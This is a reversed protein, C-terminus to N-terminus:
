PPSPPPSSLPPPPLPQPPPKPPPACAACEANESRLVLAHPICAALRRAPSMAESESVTDLVYLKAHDVSYLRWDDGHREARLTLKLRPLEVLDPVLGLPTDADESWAGEGELRVRKAWALVHSLPEVRSLTRALSLLQSGEPASLLSLLVYHGDHRPARAKEAPTRYAKKLVRAFSRCGLNSARLPHTEALTKLELKLVHPYASREQPWLRFQRAAREQELKQEDDAMEEQKIAQGLSPPPM